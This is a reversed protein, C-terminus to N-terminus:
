ALEGQAAATQPNIQPQAQPEFLAVSLAVTDVVGISGEDSVALDMNKCAPDFEATDAVVEVLVGDRDYIKVRPGAKESVVIEGAPGLALNTPNCCGPFDAPDQQGFRGFYGRSTGDPEFREVRHMGPNAVVVTGDRDLAFDLIGSPIHFGGKRHQDGIHNKLVRGHDFRHIWRSGADAVFVEDPTVALETVLRLLKEDRWTDELRGDASFIEIQGPEGVWVRGDDDIAVSWGARSTKWRASPEGDRTLVKVDLDGVLFWNGNGNCTVARLEDRFQWEGAGRGGLRRGLRYSM